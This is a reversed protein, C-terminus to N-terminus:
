KKEKHHGLWGNEAMRPPCPSKERCSDCLRDEWNFRGPITAGCDRCTRRDKICSKCYRDDWPIKLGNEIDKGCERCRPEDPRPGQYDEDIHIFRGDVDKYLM